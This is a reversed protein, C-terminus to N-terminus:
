NQSSPHLSGDAVAFILTGYCAVKLLWIFEEQDNEVKERTMIGEIATAILGTFFRIMIRSAWYFFPSAGKLNVYNIYYSSEVFMQAIVLTLVFSVFTCLLKPYEVPKDNSEM